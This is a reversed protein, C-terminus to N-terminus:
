TERWRTALDAVHAVLAGSLFLAIWAPDQDLLAARLALMLCVGAALNFAVRRLGPGLGLVNRLVVLALAELAVLAVIVSIFSGSEITEFIM